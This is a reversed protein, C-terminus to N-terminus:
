ETRDITIHSRNDRVNVLCQKTDAFGIRIRQKVPKIFSAM